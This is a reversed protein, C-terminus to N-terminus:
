LRPRTSSKCGEVGTGKEIKGVSVGVRDCRVLCLAEAHADGGEVSEPPRTSFRFKVEDESWETVAVHWPRVVPDSSELTWTKYAGAGIWSRDRVCTQNIM